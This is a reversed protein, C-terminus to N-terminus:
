LQRKLIIDLFGCILGYNHSCTYFYELMPTYKGNTSDYSILKYILQYVLYTCLMYYSLKFRV